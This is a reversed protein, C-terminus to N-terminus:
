TSCFWLQHTTHEFNSQRISRPNQMHQIYVIILNQLSLALNIRFTISVCKNKCIKLIKHFVKYTFINQYAFDSTFQHTELKVVKMWLVLSIYNWDLLNIKSVYRIKLNVVRVRYFDQRIFCLYYDM